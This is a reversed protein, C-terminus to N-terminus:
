KWHSSSITEADNLMEITFLNKKGKRLNGIVDPDCVQNTPARREQFARPFVPPPTDYVKKMLTDYNCQLETTSPLWGLNKDLNATRADNKNGANRKQKM